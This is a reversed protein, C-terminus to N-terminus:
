LLHKWLKHRVIGNVLSQSCRFERAIQIQRVGQKVMRRMKYIDDDTFRARPHAMGIAARGKVRCDEMNSQADGEFLHSLRVCIRNDCHHCIMKGPPIPGYRQAWAFRHALVRDGDVSLHGYGEKSKRAGRWEWCDGTRDVKQWFRAPLAGKDNKHMVCMLVGRPDVAVSLTTGGM